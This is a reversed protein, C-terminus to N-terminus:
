FTYAIGAGGQTIDEGPKPKQSSSNYVAAASNTLKSYLGFIYVSPDLYYAVGVDIQHGELGDTTCATNLLTCSGASSKIYHVATRWAATWRAEWLLMYAKNKYDQFRGNVTVNDEKYHKVVYDAEISHNGIKYVAALQNAVDKSSVSPDATTGDASQNRRASPSNLSGGFLDFHAEQAFAVLLPGQEWKVGWSAVRPDRKVPSITQSQGVASNGSSNDGTGTTDSPNGRSYQVKSQLGGLITPSTFDLANPRRLNFSSASSTGFGVKQLVNSQSVFNGSNVGLFGLINGYEKYPTDMNGARFTGWENNTLGVFSNRNGFTSIFGASNATVVGEDLPVSQELQWIGKTGRGVDKSGRFGVYSNSIQMEWRPIIQNGGLSGTLTSLGTTGPATAGDGHLHTEEPYFKGYFEWDSGAPSKIQAYASPAALAAGVALVMAKRNLKM